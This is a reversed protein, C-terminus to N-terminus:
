SAGMRAALRRAWEDSGVGKGNTPYPDDLWGDARLWTAPYPILKKEPLNPDSALKQAAKLLADADTRKLAETYAKEADRQKMHRPFADYFEAFGPTHTSRSASATSRGTVRPEKLEPSMQPGGNDRHWLPLTASPLVRYLNTGHPGAKFQVDLEGAQRAKEVSRFVTRPSVAAERAIRDISPFAGRDETEHNAIVMLVMRTAGGLKSQELVRTM